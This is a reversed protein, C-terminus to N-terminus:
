YRCKRNYQFLNNKDKSNYFFTIVSCWKGCHLGHTYEPNKFVSRNSIDSQKMMSPIQTSSYKIIHGGKHPINAMEYFNPNVIFQKAFNLFDKRLIRNDGRDFPFFFPKDIFGSCSSCRKKFICSNSFNKDKFTIKALLKQLNVSTSFKSM